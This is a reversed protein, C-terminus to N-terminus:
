YSRHEFSNSSHRSSYNKKPSSSSKRQFRNFHKMILALDKGISKPDDIDGSSASDAELSSHRSAKAELAHTRRRSGNVDLKEEEEMEHTKLREIIDAPVLTRFDPREKIMLVLHSFSDDLARLLTRVVMIYTIDTADLSKLDSALACLRNYISTM